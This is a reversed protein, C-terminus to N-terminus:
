NPISYPRKRGFIVLSRQSNTFNYRILRLPGTRKSVTYECHLIQCKGVLCSSICSNTGPMTVAGNGQKMVRKFLWMENVVASDLNLADVIAFPTQQLPRGPSWFYRSSGSATVSYRDCFYLSCLSTYNEM